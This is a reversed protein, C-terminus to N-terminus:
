SNVRHAMIFYGVARIFYGVARIFYGVARIFHGGARIFHGVARRRSVSRILKKEILDQVAKIAGRASSWIRSVLESTIPTRSMFFASFVFTFVNSGSKRLGPLLGSPPSPYCM